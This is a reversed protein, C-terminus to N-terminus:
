ESDDGDSSAVSDADLAFVEALGDMLVGIDDGDDQGSDQEGEALQSAPRKRPHSGSTSTTLAVRGRFAVGQKSNRPTAASVSTVYNKGRMRNDAAIPVVLTLTCPHSCLCPMFPALGTHVACPWCSAPECHHLIRELLAQRYMPSAADMAFEANPSRDDHTCTREFLTIIQESALMSEAVRRFVAVGGDTVFASNCATAYIKEIWSLMHYADKSAYCGNQSVANREDVKHTPLKIRIAADRDATNLMVWSMAFTEFREVSFGSPPGGPQNRVRTSVAPRGGRAGVADRRIRILLWGTIYYLTYALASDPPYPGGDRYQNTRRDGGAPGGGESPLDLMDPGAAAALAACLQEYTCQLLQACVAQVCRGAHDTGVFHPHLIAAALTDPTTPVAAIAAAADAGWRKTKEMAAITVGKQFGRDAAGANAATSPRNAVMLPLLVDTVHRGSEARLGQPGGTNRAVAEGYLIALPAFTCLPSQTLQALTATTVDNIVDHVRATLRTAYDDPGSVTRASTSGRVSVNPVVLGKNQIKFKGM